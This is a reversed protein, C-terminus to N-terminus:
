GLGKEEEDEPDFDDEDEEEEEEEWGDWFHETPRLDSFADACAACVTDVNVQALWDGGPLRGVLWLQTQSPRTDTDLPLVGNWSERDYLDGITYAPFSCVVDKMEEGFALDERRFWGKMGDRDSGIQLRVWGGREEIVRGTLRAYCAAVPKGEPLNTMEAGDQKVCAYGSRDLLAEAEEFRVPMQDFDLGDLEMAYPFRGWHYDDNNQNGNSFGGQWAILGEPHFLWITAGDNMYTLHWIGDEGYDLGCEGDELFLEAYGNSSHIDNIYLSKEGMRSEAVADYERGNWHAIRLGMQGQANSVEAMLFDRSFLLNDMEEGERLLFEGCGPLAAPKINRDYYFINEPDMHSLRESAEASLPVPAFDQAMWPVADGARLANRVAELKRVRLVTDEIRYLFLEAYSGMENGWRGTGYWTNIFVQWGPFDQEAEAALYDQMPTTEAWANVPGLALLFALLILWTKKM